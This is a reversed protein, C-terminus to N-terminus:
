YIKQAPGFPQMPRRAFGTGRLISRAERLRSNMNKEYAAAQNYDGISTYWDALAGWVLFWHFHVAIPKMLEDKVSESIILRYSFKDEDAPVRSTERYIENDPDDAPLAFSIAKRLEADRLQVLRSIVAGDVGETSDSARANRAQPSGGELADVRKHTFLDVDKYVGAKLVEILREKKKDEYDGSPIDADNIIAIEYRAM